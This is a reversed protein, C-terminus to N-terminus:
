RGKGTWGGQRWSGELTNITVPVTPPLQIGAIAGYLERLTDPNSFLFSLRQRQVQYQRGNSYRRYIM